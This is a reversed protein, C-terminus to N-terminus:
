QLWPKNRLLYLIDKPTILNIDKDIKINYAKQLILAIFESCLYGKTIPNKPLKCVLAIFVGIMQFFGYKKGLYPLIIQIIQEFQDRNMELPEYIVSTNKEFFTPAYIVGVGLHNAHVIVQGMQLYVHSFDTKEIFRIIHAVVALKSKPKSFGVGIM